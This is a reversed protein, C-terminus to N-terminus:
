VLSYMHVTYWVTPKRIRNNYIRLYKAYKKNRRHGKKKKKLCNWM